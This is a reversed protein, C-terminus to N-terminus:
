QFFFFWVLDHQKLQGLDKEKKKGMSIEGKVRFHAAEM